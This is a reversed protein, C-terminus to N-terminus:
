YASYGFAEELLDNGKGKRRRAREGDKEIRETGRDVRPIAALKDEGALHESRRM